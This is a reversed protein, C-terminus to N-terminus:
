PSSACRVPHGVRRIKSIILRYVVEILRCGPQQAASSSLAEAVTTAREASRSFTGGTSTCTPMPLKNNINHYLSINM